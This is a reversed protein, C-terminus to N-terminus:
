RNRRQYLAAQLEVAWRTAPLTNLWLDAPLSLVPLDALQDAPYTTAWPLQEPNLSCCPLGYHRAVLAYLAASKHPLYLARAQEFWPQLEKSQRWIKSIPVQGLEPRNAWAQLLGQLLVREPPNAILLLQYVQSLQKLQAREEPLLGWAPVPCLLLPLDSLPLASREASDSAFDSAPLPYLPWQQLHGDVGPQETEFSLSRGAWALQLDALDSRSLWHQLPDLDPDSWLILDAQLAKLQQRAAQPEPPLVLAQAALHAPLETQLAAFRLVLTIQWQPPLARFHQMAWDLWCISRQDVVWILHQTQAQAPFHRAESQAPLEPAPLDFLYWSRLRPLYPLSQQPWQELNLGALRESWQARQLTDPGTAQSVYIALYQAIEASLDALSLATNDQGLDHLLAIKLLLAPVREPTEQIVLSEALALSELTQGQQAYEQVLSLFDTSLEPSQKLTQMFHGVAQAMEAQKVALLGLHFHAESYNPNLGLARTWYQQALQPQNQQIAIRGLNLWVEQIQDNHALVQEYHLLAQDWRQQMQYLEGLQYCAEICDPWQVILSKLLLEAQPWNQEQFALMANQFADELTQQM